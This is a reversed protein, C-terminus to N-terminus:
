TATGDHWRRHQRRRHTVNANRVNRVRLVLTSDVALFGTLAIADRREIRTVLIDNIVHSIM